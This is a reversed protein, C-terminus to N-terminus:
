VKIDKLDTINLKRTNVTADISYVWSTFNKWKKQLESKKEEPVIGFSLVGKSNTGRVLFEKTFTKSRKANGEIWKNLVQQAQENNISWNNSISKLTVKSSIFISIKLIFNFVKRAFKVKEQSDLVLTSIEELISKETIKDM